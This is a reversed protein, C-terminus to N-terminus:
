NLDGIDLPRVRWAKRGRCIARWLLWRRLSERGCWWVVWFAGLFFPMSAALVVCVDLLDSAYLM